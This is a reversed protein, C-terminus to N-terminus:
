HTTNRKRPWPEQAQTSTHKHTPPHQQQQTHTHTHTHTHTYTLPFLSRSGGDHKRYIAEDEELSSSILLLCGGVGVGVCVCVCWQSALWNRLCAHCTYTHTQTDTGVPIHSQHTGLLSLSVCGCVGPPQHLGSSCSASFTSSSFSSMFLDGVFCVCL